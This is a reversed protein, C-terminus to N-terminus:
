SWAELREYSLSEGECVVARAHGMQAARASVRGVVSSFGHDARDRPWCRDVTLVISGLAVDDGAAVQELIEVYHGLLRRVTAGDFLDIAYNFAVEMEASDIVGLVLDFRATDVSRPLSSVTLGRLSATAGSDALYNFVAQFLPTEGLSREPHLADVLRAFPLDQHNQAAAMNQDIQELLGGFTDVADLDARLVLTNVFFGILLETGARNRGAVPVGIRVDRQGAYRSLLLCYAAGLLTPMTVSRQNALERLWRVTRIGVIKGVRAGQASRLGTHRATVPLEVPANAAGLHKRWYEIQEDLAPGDLWERQWYAYDAYQITLPVLPVPRGDCIAEYACVFEATLLELSGADSVIHHVAFHLIHREDSEKLLAVRLLPGHELDFPRASLERILSEAQEARETGCLARLDHEVWEHGITPDVVQAAIGDSEEFRTHLCAHRQVLMSVVERVVDVNLKGDLRVARTINYAISAPDLKWLFWLREQAYSLPVRRDHRAIPVVPFNRYSIGTQSAKRRFAARRTADLGAYRYAIREIEGASM